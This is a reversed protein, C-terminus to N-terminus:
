VMMLQSRVAPVSQSRLLHSWFKSRLRALHDLLTQWYDGHRLCMKFESYAMEVEHLSQGTDIDADIRSRLADLGGEM